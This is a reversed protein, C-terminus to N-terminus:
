RVAPLTNSLYLCNSVSLIYRNVELCDSAARLGGDFLPAWVHCTYWGENKLQTNRLDHFRWLKLLILICTELWYQNSKGLAVYLDTRSLVKSALDELRDVADEEDDASEISLLEDFFAEFVENKPASTGFWSEVCALNRHLAKKVVKDGIPVIDSKTKSLVDSSQLLDDAADGSPFTFPHDLGGSIVATTLPYRAENDHNAMDEAILLPTSAGDDRVALDEAIRLPQYAGAIPMPSSVDEVPLTFGRETTPLALVAEIPM